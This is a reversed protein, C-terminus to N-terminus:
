WNSRHWNKRKLSENNRSRFRAEPNEIFRRSDNSKRSISDNYLHDKDFKPGESASHFAQDCSNWNAM